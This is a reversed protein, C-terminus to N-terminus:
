NDPVWSVLFLRSQFSDLHFANVGVRQVRTWSFDGVSGFLANLAVREV